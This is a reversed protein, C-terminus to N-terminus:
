AGVSADGARARKIEYMATDARDFTHEIFADPHHVASGVSAAVGVASLQASLRDALEDAEGEEWDVALVGFEDGGLRAVVDTARTSARLTAAATRLLADGARHGGSDNVHKLGDLDVIAIALGCRTRAARAEELRLSEDWARRNPLQTLGDVLSAEEARSARAAATRHRRETAVLLIVTQLLAHLIDAGGETTQDFRLIGHIRGEPDILPWPLREDPEPESSSHIPSFSWGPVVGSAVIDILAAVADDTSGIAAMRPTDAAIARQNLSFHGGDPPLERRRPLSKTPSRVTGGPQHARAATGPLPCHGGDRTRRALLLHRQRPAETCGALLLELAAVAVLEAGAGTPRLRAAAGASPRGGGVTM